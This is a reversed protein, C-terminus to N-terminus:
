NKGNKWKRFRDACVSYGGCKSCPGEYENSVRPCRDAIQEATMTKKRKPM